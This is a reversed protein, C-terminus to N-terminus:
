RRALDLRPLVFGHAPFSTTGYDNVRPYWVRVLTWDNGPSVDQVPQDLAVRGRAAGSAWNAHDVRIERRSVVRRVVALHGSPLRRTGALVLVGGPEPRSSRAYRGAAADWWARADGRLSIGTRMRAYPVCSMEVDPGPQPAGPTPVRATGCAALPLLAVLGLMGRRDM